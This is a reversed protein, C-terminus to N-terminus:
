LGDMTPYGWQNSVGPGPGAQDPYDSVQAMADNYLSEVVSVSSTKSAAFRAAAIFASWANYFAGWHEMLQRGQPVTKSLSYTHYVM